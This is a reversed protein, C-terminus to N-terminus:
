LPLGQARRRREKVKLDIMMEYCARMHSYYVGPVGDLIALRLFLLHFLMLYPRGPMRYALLKLAKRRRAPDRSVLGGWDLDVSAEAVLMEAEMDSYKNHRDFWHAVGHSFPYHLLHGSLSGLTGEVVARVHIPREYRIREPRFLRTLWTPYLQARKLWRGMFFDKRRMQYASVDRGIEEIRALEGLLEEDCVEDADIYFVWPHKFELNRVAWNQHAAWDDFRRQHVRAGREEAIQVTRDASFSDLVVLDDSWSLGDICRPLNDEENLTLILVSIPIM